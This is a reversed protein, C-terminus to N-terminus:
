RRLSVPATRLLPLSSIADAVRLVDPDGKGDLLHKVVKAAASSAASKPPDAEEETACWVAVVSLSTLNPEQLRLLESTVM